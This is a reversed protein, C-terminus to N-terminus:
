SRCGKEGTNRAADSSAEIQRPNVAARRYDHDDDAHHLQVPELLGHVLQSPPHSNSDPATRTSAVDVVARKAPSEPPPVLATRAPEQESQEPRKSRTLERKAVPQEAASEMTRALAAAGGSVGGGGGRGGRAAMSQSANKPTLSKAQIPPNTSKRPITKRTFDGELVVEDCRGHPHQDSGDEAKSQYPCAPQRGRAVVADGALAKRSRRGPERRFYKQPGHKRGNSENRRKGAAITVAAKKRATRRFAWTM